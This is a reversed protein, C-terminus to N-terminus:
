HKTYLIAKEVKQLGIMAQHQHVHSVTGDAEKPSQFQDMLAGLLRVKAQADTGTEYVHCLVFPQGFRITTHMDAAEDIEGEMVTFPLRLWVMRSADLAHDFFGHEYTWQGGLVFGLTHLTRKVELYNAERGELKSHLALM